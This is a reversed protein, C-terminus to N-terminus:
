DNYGELTSRKFRSSFSACSILLSNCMYIDHPLLNWTQPGMKLVWKYATSLRTNHGHQNQSLTFIHKLSSPLLDKLFSLVYKNVQLQYLNVLKLFNLHKFIPATHARYHAVTIIRVNKANHDIKIFSCSMSSGM